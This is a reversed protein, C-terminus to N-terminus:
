DGMAGDDVTRARDAVINKDAEVRNKKVAGHAVTGYDSVVRDNLAAVKRRAKM